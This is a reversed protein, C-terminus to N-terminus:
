QTRENVTIESGMAEARVEPKYYLYAKSDPIVARVPWRAIVEFTFNLSEGATLDELYFIVKREAQEVRSATESTLLRDLSEQVLDFGTPVGVDVIMMGTTNDPGLYRVTVLVNVKNDVEVQNADYTVALFMDQTISEDPLLTHYKSVLQYRSKGAGTASLLLSRDTPLAVTQLTDYNSADLTLSALLTGDIERITLEMEASRTQSRAATMLAKLAMVTDQTNGFGGQSNRQLSIWEIAANARIDGREILALAAYATTEVAYPEWHVGSGDQIAMEWLRKITQAYLSTDDELRAFVFAAVALAYADDQVKSLHDKLYQVASPSDVQGYDLLANLVYATLTFTGAVGGAMGQHHLFGVPEWSGNDQQQEDIWSAARALVTEDITQVDRAASFTGLVFASLWLSGSEDREGFASFSGDQRQFTLERQYGVTIFHEAQARVEPVLQETADLYRLIEVDPAFFIMNQEGCGYPMHLLDDMGQISQAVLSPSINLWRRESGVVAHAPIENDILISHGAEILGNIVTERPTGEAEVRLSKRVADARLGSRFSVEVTHTGLAKPEIMFSAMGVSNAKVLVPQTGPQLLKFWDGPELTVHVLQDVNLYNFVQMRIPFREGRTVAVPLDPEGFFEQFVRLSSEGIGMGQDGTSVAHVRWTTISDPVTLDLDAAGNEDTLLDPLWVWTEPFFQRVYTVEALNDTPPPPPTSPTSGGGNRRASAGGGSVEGPLYIGQTHLVQMGGERFVEDARRSYHTEQRPVMFRKELEQMVQQMNLRGANLAYVSEDVVTLGVMAPGETQVSLKVPMGPLSEELDFALDLAALPTFAVDFALSDASVEANPNIIYAVIQASPTMAPTIPVDITTARTAGSYVTHGQAVVDYYVTRKGVQVVEFAATQGVAWAKSQTPALHIFGDPYHSSVPYLKVGTEKQAQGDWVRSMVSLYVAQEPVDLSMTTQGRFPEVDLVSDPVDGGYQLTLQGQVAVPAGAPTEAVLTLMLPHGPAISRSRPILQHQLLSDVVKLLQNTSEVHDSTDTVAVNLQISGSGGAGATGSAYAVAPLTFDVTGGTLPATYRAYEEWVGVYRTASIVALGDVPKGFFYDAKITGRIPEDALVYDRELEVTVGFRPLVYREVRVDVQGSSSGSIAKIQWTGQNLETALDLDFVAVGFANTQMDKKFVRVGMGDSITVLVPGYVAPKLAEDLLLVRGHITQGPKYIPKDTEVLLLPLEKVSLSATLVERSGGALVQIQYSGPKLESSDFQAQFRGTDDTLGHVIGLPTLEGSDILVAVPVSVPQGAGDVTTVPINLPSGLYAEKPVVAVVHVRLVSAQTQAQVTRDTTMIGLNTWTGLTLGFVCIWM